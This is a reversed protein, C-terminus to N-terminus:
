VTRVKFASEVKLVERTAATWIYVISSAAPLVALQAGAADWQLWPPAACWRMQTHQATAVLWACDHHYHEQPPAAIWGSAGHCTAAGPLLHSAM